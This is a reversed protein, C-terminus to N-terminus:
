KSHKVLKKDISARYKRKRTWHIIWAFFMLLILPLAINILQLHKRKSISLQKNLLRIKVSKSRLEILNEQHTLYHIANLLFRENGFIRETNRDYGLPLTTSDSAIGTTENRIISSGAIFIQRTLESEAKFPLDTIVEEPKMRNKYNSQFQGSLMVAVPLYSLQFNEVVINEIDQLAIVAPTQIINAHQSSALLLETEINTLQGTLSIYSVFESLIEGTNKTIPHLDSSLLLPAYYWPMFDFQPTEDQAAINVPLEIAQLDQILAPHIKVGYKFFLDELNYEAAIAPTSGQKSLQQKDYQVGDVLWLISGGYMLYQDLIYKDAETFATKPGAIIILPYEYLVAAHNQLEGRDIQYYRSLSKTIAYTEAENFEGHGELFAIKTISKTALSRLADAIEFELNEISININEEGSKDSLNKLLPVNVIQNDTQISMWPFITKRISKGEKDRMFVQTPKLGQEALLAFQQMREEESVAEAPNIYTITIKHKSIRALDHLMDVSAQRLRYFAPNLDGNLYFNVQIPHNIEKILQVTYPSLSYRGDETLDIRFPYITFIALLMLSALLILLSKLKSKNLGRINNKSHQQDM